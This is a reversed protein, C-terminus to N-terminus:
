RNDQQKTLQKKKAWRAQAAVKGSTRRRKVSGGVKGMLSAGVKRLWADSLIHNCHPCRM